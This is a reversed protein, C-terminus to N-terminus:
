NVKINAEAIVKTWKAIDNKIRMAFSEPSGGVPEIQTTLFKDRTDNASLM